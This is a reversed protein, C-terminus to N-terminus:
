RDNARPPLEAESEHKARIDSGVARPNQRRCFRKAGKPGLDTLREPRMVRVEM